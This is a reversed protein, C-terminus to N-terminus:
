RMFGLAGVLHALLLLGAAVAILLVAYRRWHIMTAQEKGETDKGEFLRIDVFRVAILAVVVAVFAADRWTPQWGDSQAIAIALFFLVMNGGFMWMLRLLCGTMTDQKSPTATTPETM